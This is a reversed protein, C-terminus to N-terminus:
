ELGMGNIFDIINEKYLRSDEQLYESERIIYGKDYDKLNSEKICNEILDCLIIYDKETVEKIKTTLLEKINEERFDPLQEVKGKFNRDIKM